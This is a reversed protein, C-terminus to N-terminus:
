YLEQWTMSAYLTNTGGGITQAALVLTDQISNLGSYVLAQKRVLDATQTNKATGSTYGSDLVVGGSLATSSMDVQALSYTSNVASWSAGTLSTPNLVLRYLVNGGSTNLVTYNRVLIQGTNRVSNPGTTGARISLLPILTGGVASGTTGNDTSFQLGLEDSIGAESGVTCCIQGLTAASAATGTNTIEARCPLCATTMYTTSILNAHEFQHAYYVFGNMNFGIRVRGVGLWQLDIILIQAKTLDLTVGSPGSGNLTDLNWSAQPIATNVVSGSVFSRRVINITSGAQELYIGNNTDFYGIRQRLNTQPPAFVFTEFVMLSKGPQYRQYTKTQRLVQAGSATGGTNLNVMSGNLNNTVNGTGTVLNEWVLASDGYSQQSDILTVVESTRLRSFADISASDYYATNAKEWYSM